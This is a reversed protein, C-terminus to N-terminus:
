RFYRPYSVRLGFEQQMGELSAKTLSALGKYFPQEAAAILQELFHSSWTLLHKSLYDKLDIPQNEAIWSMLLLMTGIHDEPEKEETHVAIGTERMWQRLDLTSEGFIVCERDTYVSGWPPAPKTAPGIFLRRYEKVLSDAQIGDQLGKKMLKLYQEALAGSVFPWAEGAAHPDTDALAEFMQQANGTKPDELFFPGLTQGVFIVLNLTEEDM